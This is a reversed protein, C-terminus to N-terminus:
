IADNLSKNAHQKDHRWGAIEASGRPDGAGPDRGMSQNLHIKKQKILDIVGDNLMYSGLSSASVWTSKDIEEYRIRKSSQDESEDIVIRKRKRKNPAM